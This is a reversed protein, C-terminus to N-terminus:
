GNQLVSATEPVSACAKAKFRLMYGVTTRDRGPLPHMTGEISVQRADRACFAFAFPTPDRMTPCLSSLEPAPEGSTSAFLQMVPMGAAEMQAWGTLAEALENLYVVEGRLNAFILADGMQDLAATMLEQAARLRKQRQNHLLALEVVAQVDKEEFPKCIFGYPETEKARQFTGRDTLATVYVVPIDHTAKIQRAAEVGDIEGKLAIDMLVLDPQEERARKVGEEGTRVIGSVVFGLSRLIGEMDKAVIVENEVILVRAKAEM